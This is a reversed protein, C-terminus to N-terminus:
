NSKVVTSKGPKRLIVMATTAFCGQTSAQTHALPTPGQSSAWHSQTRLQATLGQSAILARKNYTLEKAVYVKKKKKKLIKKRKICIMKLTM